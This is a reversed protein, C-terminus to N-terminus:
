EYKDRLKNRISEALQESMLEPFEHSLKETFDSWSCFIGTSQIIKEPAHNHSTSIATCGPTKTGAM